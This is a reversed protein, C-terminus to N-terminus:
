YRIKVGFVSPTASVNSVAKHPSPPSPRKVRWVTHSRCFPVKAVEGERLNRERALPRM